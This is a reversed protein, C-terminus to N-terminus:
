TIEFGWEAYWRARCEWIKALYKVKDDIYDYVTPTMKGSLMRRIRGVRQKLNGENNSPCTLHVVNLCPVDLAEDALKTALLVDFDGERCTSLTDKRYVRDKKGHLVFANVGFKESLIKGLMECHEVRESLVIQKKGLKHENLIRQLIQANRYKDAAISNLMRSWTAVGTYDFFYDTAVRIVKASTIIGADELEADSIVFIKSGIYEYLLFHMKDKRFPTASVGFRYKAPIRNICFMFTEAPARHCEDILLTGFTRQIEAWQEPTANSLSQVLAVTIDGIEFRGDGIVGITADELIFKEKIQEIWQQQLDKMHVLILTRQRRASAEYIALVTKGSGCPAEIVGQEFKSIVERAKAQHPRLKLWPQPYFKIPESTVRRDIYEISYGFEALVVRAYAGTGRPICFYTPTEAYSLVYEQIGLERVKQRDGRAQALAFEFKPNKHTLDYRFKEKIPEPITIPLRLVTDIIVPIKQQQQM